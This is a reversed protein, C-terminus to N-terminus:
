ERGAAAAPRYSRFTPSVYRFEEMTLNDISLDYFDNPEVKGGTILYIRRMVKRGPVVGGLYKGVTAAHVDILEAFRTHSVDNLVLWHNLKM